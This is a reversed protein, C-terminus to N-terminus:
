LHRVIIAKNKLTELYQKFKQDVKQEKLWGKIRPKATDFSETEAAKKDTLKILHYGFKTEVIDSVEGVKLGFAADEFPKVMQGRAFFGLDGGNNSSPCSSHAKSLESFSDGNKIQKQIKEIKERAEKKSAEDDAKEASILIHSAKVREPMKFNEINENYFEEAEDDKIVATEAFEARLSIQLTKLAIDRKFYDKLEKESSNSEKLFKQFEEDFDFM